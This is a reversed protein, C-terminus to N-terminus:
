KYINCFRSLITAVEARTITDGPRLRNDSGKIFGTGVSWTMSDISWEPCDSIDTYDNLRITSASGTNAATASQTGYFQQVTRYIITAMQARTIGDTPNFTDPSTGRIIGKSAALNIYDYCEDDPSIDRFGADPIDASSINLGLLRMISVAFDSRTMSIDPSFADSSKGSMVGMATMRSISFKGWHNQTDDFESQASAYIKPMDYLAPLKRNYRSLAVMACLMQETAMIDPQTKDISTHTFLPGGDFAFSGLVGVYGSCDLNLACLAIISQAVSEASPIDAFDVSLLFNVGDDIAAKVDTQERYNALAQLAMATMDIDSSTGDLSYGGDPLKKSLIYALLKERTTLNDIGEAMPIDYKGSDFALLAFIAGNIGQKTVNKFDALKELLNYNAFNAPNKGLATLALIVRSYESYKSKTLVGGSETISATLNALYTDYYSQPIDIGARSMGIIGWEGGVSGFTPAPVKDMLAAAIDQPSTNINQNASVNVTSICVCTILILAFLKKIMIDM